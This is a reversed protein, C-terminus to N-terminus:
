ILKKYIKMEKDTNTYKNCNNIKVKNIDKKNEKKNNKIIM